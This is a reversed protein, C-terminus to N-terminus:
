AAGTLAAYLILVALLFFSLKQIGTGSVAPAGSM